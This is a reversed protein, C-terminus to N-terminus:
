KAFELFRAYRITKLPINCIFDAKEQILMANHKKSSYMLSPSKEDDWSKSFIVYGLNGIAWIKVVQNTEYGNIINMMQKM